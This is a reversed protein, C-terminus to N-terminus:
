LKLLRKLGNEKIRYGIVALNLRNNQFIEGAVRKIDSLKVASIKQSYEEPAMVERDLIEQKLYWGALEDSSELHLALKGKIFDKAKTLEAASVGERSVKKYEELIIKVAKETKDPSTGVVTTLYGGDRYGEVDTHVQYALGRRERVAIFLRSSMSGGLIVGLLKAAEYDQHYYGYAPVGLSFNAQKTEQRKIKLRPATQKVAFNELKNKEGGTVRAFIEKVAKIDRASFRGALGAAINKGQYHGQWYRLFDKRRFRSVNEKTGITDWGAPTDGYLCSEFIDEIHMVPNNEYLNIEELIVGREREIEAREFKSNLLIDGIVDVALAAHEGGVKAYYGTYEKSTFANFEGGVKDLETALAFATPRKKTGKFFMHELFHSIGNNERTEHRSGTAVMVLITFTQTSPMPVTLLRVGNKLVEKKYM